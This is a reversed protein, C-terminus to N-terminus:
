PIRDSPNDKVIKVQYRGDQSCLAAKEAGLKEAASLNMSGSVLEIRKSGILRKKHVEVRYGWGDGMDVQAPM